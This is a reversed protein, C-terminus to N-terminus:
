KNHSIIAWVHVTKNATACAVACAINTGAPFYAPPDLKIYVVNDAADAGTGGGLYFPVEAEIQAVATIPNGTGTITTVCICWEQQALSPQSIVFGEVWSDLVNATASVLVAPTDSYKWVVAADATITAAAAGLVGAGTPAFVTFTGGGLRNIPPVQSIFMRKVVAALGVENGGGVM